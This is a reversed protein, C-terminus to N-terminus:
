YVEGLVWHFLVSLLHHHNIFLSSLLHHFYIFISSPSWVHQKQKETVWNHRIWQWGMSQLMGSMRTRLWRRSSEWDHGNLQHHRGREEQKWDKGADPDKRILWSKVDLPWLMLAEAEAETMGTFVWPQNGRPNVTKIQRYDLLIELTKELVVIRLM